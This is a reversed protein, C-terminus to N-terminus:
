WSSLSVSDVSKFSNSNVLLCHLILLYSVEQEWRAVITLWMGWGELFWSFGGQNQSAKGSNELEYNGGKNVKQTM